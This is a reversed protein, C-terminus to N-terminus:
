GQNKVIVDGSRSAACSAKLVRGFFRVAEERQRPAPLNLRDRLPRHGPQPGCALYGSPLTIAKKAQWFRGMDVHGGQIMGQGQKISADISGTPWDKLGLAFLFMLGSKTTSLDGPNTFTQKVQHM